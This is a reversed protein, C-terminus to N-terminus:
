IVINSLDKFYYSAFIWGLLAYFQDGVSNLFSDPHYKGGPWLKIKNIIKMGYVTNEVYEFIIHLIFWEVFSINWYYAIIGTAFHLLSFNDTFQKGMKTNIM